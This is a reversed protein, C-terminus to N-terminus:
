DFMNMGVYDTIINYFFFMINRELDNVQNYDAYHRVYTRGFVLCYACEVTYKRSAEQQLVIMYFKNM